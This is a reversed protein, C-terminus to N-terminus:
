PISPRHRRSTTPARNRCLFRHDCATRRRTMTMGPQLSLSTVSSLAICTDDDAASADEAYAVAATALIALVVLARRM